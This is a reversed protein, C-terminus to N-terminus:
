YMYKKGTLIEYYDNDKKMAYIKETISGEIFPNTVLIKYYKMINDNM